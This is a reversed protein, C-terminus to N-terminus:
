VFPNNTDHHDHHDHHDDTSARPTATDHSAGTAPTTTPSTIVPTPDPKRKAQGGGRGAYLSPAITDGDGERRRLYLVAERAEDYAHLFLTYARQRDEAVKATVMPAQERAGIATMMKDALDRARDLDVIELATKSTIRSWANRLLASLGLLEFAVNRYGTAGKFESLARPDVLNRHALATADSHLTDRLKTAAENLAVVDDTPATAAAYEGHAHAVALVYAELADFQELDLKPLAKVIEPRLAVIEPLAGIATTVATPIDLNISALDATTLAARDAATHDFATKFRDTAGTQVVDHAHPHPHKPSAATQSRAHSSSHSSSSSRAM